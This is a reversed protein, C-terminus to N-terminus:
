KWVGKVITYECHPCVLRHKGDPQTRGKDIMEIDCKLCIM